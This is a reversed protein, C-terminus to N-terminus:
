VKEPHPVIILNSQKTLMMSVMESVMSEHDLETYGKATIQIAQCQISALFPHKLTRLSGLHMMFALLLVSVALCAVPLCPPIFAPSDPLYGHVLFDGFTREKGAFVNTYYTYMLWLSCFQGLVSLLVSVWTLKRRFQIISSNKFQDCWQFTDKPGFMINTIFPSAFLEPLHFALHPFGHRRALIISAFLFQPLINLLLGVCLSVFRSLTVITGGVGCYLRVSEKPGGCTNARGARCLSQDTLCTFNGLMWQQKHDNWFTIAGSREARKFVRWEPQGLVNMGEPDTEPVQSRVQFGDECLQLQTLEQCLPRSVTGIIDLPQHPPPSLVQFVGLSYFMMLVLVLVKATINFLVSFFVLLYNLTFHGDLGFSDAQPLFRVPSDKFFKVVGLISGIASLFISFYFQYADLGPLWPPGDSILPNHVILPIYTMKKTYFTWICSQIVLQPLSELFPELTSIFRLYYQKRARWGPTRSVLDRLISAAFFQPWVQCQLLM